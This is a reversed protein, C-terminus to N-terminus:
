AADGKRSSPWAPTVVEDARLEELRGTGGEDLYRQLASAANDAEIPSRMLEPVRM